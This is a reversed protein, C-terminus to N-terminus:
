LVINWNLVPYECCTNRMHRQEKFMVQIKNGDVKREERIVDEFKYKTKCEECMVKIKDYAPLLHKYCANPMDVWFTGFAKYGFNKGDKFYLMEKFIKEKYYTVIIKGKFQKKLEAHIQKFTEFKNTDRGVYNGASRGEKKNLYIVESEKKIKRRLECDMYVNIEPLPHCDPAEVYNCYYHEADSCQGQFTSINALIM